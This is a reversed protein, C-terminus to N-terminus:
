GAGDGHALRGGGPHEAAQAYRHPFGVPHDMGQEGVATCGDRGDSRSKGSDDPATGDITLRQRRPYEAVRRSEIPQLADDMRQNIGILATKQGTGPPSTPPEGDEVHRQEELAAAIADAICHSYDRRRREDM